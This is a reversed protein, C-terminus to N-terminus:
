GRRAAKGQLLEDLNRNIKQEIGGRLLSYLFGLTIDLELSDRSVKITGQLGPRSFEALDSQRGRTYNCSVGYDREAREIWQQAVKRIPGMGLAHQRKIHIDSV